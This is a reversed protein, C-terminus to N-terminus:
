VKKNLYEKVALRIVTAMTEGETKAREKLKDHMDKTVRLVFGIENM